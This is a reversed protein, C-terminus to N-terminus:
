DLQNALRVRHRTDIIALHLGIISKSKRVGCQKIFPVQFCLDRIDSSASSINM